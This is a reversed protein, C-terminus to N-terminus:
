TSVTCEELMKEGVAKWLFFKFIEADSNLKTRPTAIDEM